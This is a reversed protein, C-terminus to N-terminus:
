AYPLSHCFIKQPADVFKRFALAARERGAPSGHGHEPRVSLDVRDSVSAGMLARRQTIAHEGFVALNDATRPVIPREVEFGALLTEVGLLFNARKLHLQDAILHDQASSCPLVAIFSSLGVSRESSFRASATEGSGM